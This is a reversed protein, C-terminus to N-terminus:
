TTWIRPASAERGCLSPRLVKWLSTFYAKAEEASDGLYRAVLVEPLRTTGCRAAGQVTIERLLSLPLESIMESAILFTGSVSCDALGVPSHLLPDNGPVVGSEFWVTVGERRIHIRQEFCGNAFREGSARRGFCVIEWSAFRAEKALEVNTVLRSRSGDFLINEQPLWEAIANRAVAFRVRQQSSEISCKYWKTAGPTTLLVHAHDDVDVEIDLADGQAIGGPPHVIVLHVCGDGEPYFPKQVVLPGCHERRALVSRAGLRRIDLQLRAEWSAAKRPSAASTPM